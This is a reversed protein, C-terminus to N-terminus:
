GLSPNTWTSIKYLTCHRVLTINQETNHVHAPDTTLTLPRLFTSTPPSPRVRASHPHHHHPSPHFLSDLPMKRREQPASSPCLARIEERGEEEEEEEEDEDEYPPPPPPIPPINPPNSPIGSPSIM